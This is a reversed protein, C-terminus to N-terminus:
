TASEKLPGQLQPHTQILQGIALSQDQDLGIPFQTHSNRWRQLWRPGLPTKLDTIQTSAETTQEKLGTPSGVGVFFGSALLAVRVRTAVSYTYLRCNPKCKLRLKSFCEISWMEPNVLPSYPDFFILDAQETEYSITNQFDGRRLIWQLGDRSHSGSNLIENLVGEYGSFHEFHHSQNLAFKLLDLDKEFSVIKLPRAKPIQSWCHIAALANSAAGLGVDFLVFEPLSSQELHTCLNSQNVYLSNAEAWPGVPNHMIENVQNNRISIAGTSTTVIEFLNQTMRLM